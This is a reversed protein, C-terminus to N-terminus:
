ARWLHEYKALWDRWAMCTRCNAGATGQADWHGHGVFVTTEKLAENRDKVAQAVANAVRRILVVANDDSMTVNLRLDRVIEEARRRAEANMMELEGGNTSMVSCTNWGALAVAGAEGPM